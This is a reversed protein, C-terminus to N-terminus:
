RSLDQVISLGAVVDAAQKTTNLSGLDFSTLNKCFGAGNMRVGLELTLNVNQGLVFTATMRREEVVITRLEIESRSVNGTDDSKRFAGFHAHRAVVNNHVNLQDGRDSDFFTKTESDTFAASGNTGANNGLDVSVLQMPFSLCNQQRDKKNRAARM